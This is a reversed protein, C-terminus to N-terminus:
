EFAPLEYRTEEKKQDYEALHYMGAFGCLFALFTGINGVYSIAFGIALLSGGLFLYSKPNIKM